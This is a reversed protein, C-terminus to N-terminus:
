RAALVNIQSLVIVGSTLTPILVGRHNRPQGSSHNTLVHPFRIM